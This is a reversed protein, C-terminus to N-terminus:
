GAKGPSYNRHNNLKKQIGLMLAGTRKQKQRSNRQYKLASRFKLYSHPILVYVYVYVYEFKSKILENRIIMIITVVTQSITYLRDCNDYTLPTQMSDIELM